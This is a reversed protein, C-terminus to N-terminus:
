IKTTENGWKQNKLYYIYIYLIFIDIHYTYIYVYIGQDGTCGLHVHNELLM